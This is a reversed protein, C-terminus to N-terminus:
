HARFEPGDRFGRCMFFAEPASACANLEEGVLKDTEAPLLQSTAGGLRRFTYSTGTDLSLDTLEEQGSSDTYFRYYPASFSGGDVYLDVNGAAM